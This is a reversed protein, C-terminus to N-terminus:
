RDAATYVAAVGRLEQVAEVLQNRGSLLRNQKIQLFHEIERARRKPHQKDGGVFRFPIGSAHREAAEETLYPLQELHAAQQPRERNVARAFIRQGLKSASM